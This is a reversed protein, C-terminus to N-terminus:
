GCSDADEEDENREAVIASSREVEVDGLMGRGSPGSLLDPFREGPISRRPEKEAITVPDVTVVEHASDAGHTDLLDHDGRPRRPLVWVGFTLDPADAPYAEVM